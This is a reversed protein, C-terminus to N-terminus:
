NFFVGLFVGVGLLCFWSFFFAGRFGTWLSFSGGVQLGLHFSAPSIGSFAAARHLDPQRFEPHPIKHWPTSRKEKCTQVVALAHETCFDTQEHTQPEPTGTDWHTWDWCTGARSQLQPTERCGLRPGLGAGAWTTGLGQSHSPMSPCMCHLKIISWILESVM